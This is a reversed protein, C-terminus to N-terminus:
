HRHPLLSRATRTPHNEHAYRGAPLKVIPCCSLVPLIGQATASVRPLADDQAGRLAAIAVELRHDLAHFRSDTVYKKVINAM